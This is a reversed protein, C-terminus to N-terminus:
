SCLLVQYKLHIIPKGMKQVCALWEKSSKRTTWCFTLHTRPQKAQVLYRRASSRSLSKFGEDFVNCGQLPGREDLVLLSAAFVFSTRQSHASCAVYEGCDDQGTGRYM